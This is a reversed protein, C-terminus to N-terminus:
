KGFSLEVASSMDVDTSTSLSKLIYLNPASDAREMDAGDVGVAVLVSVVVGLLLEGDRM